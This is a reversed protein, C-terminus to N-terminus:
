RAFWMPQGNQDTHRTNGLMASLLEIADHGTATIQKGLKKEKIYVSNNKSIEYRIYDKKIFKEM